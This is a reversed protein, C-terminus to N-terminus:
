AENEVGEEEVAPVPSVPKDTAPDTLADDGM